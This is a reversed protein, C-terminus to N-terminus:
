AHIVFRDGTFRVIVKRVTVIHADVLRLFDIEVVVVVHLTARLPRLLATRGITGGHAELHRAETRRAEFGRAEFGRAELNRAKVNRAEVDRHRRRRLGLHLRFGLSFRLRDDRHLSFRLFVLSGGSLSLTFGGGGLAFGGGGLAFGGGGGLLSLSLGLTGSRLGLAFGGGGSRLGLAFGGGGGLLSLAFSGGVHVSTEVQANIERM